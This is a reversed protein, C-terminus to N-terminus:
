NVIRKLFDVVTSKALSMTTSTLDGKALLLSLTFM